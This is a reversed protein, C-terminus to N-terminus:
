SNKGQPHKTKKDEKQPRFKPNMMEKINDCYSFFNRSRAYEDRPRPFKIDIEKLIRGPRNSMILIRDCMFVAEEVSNTVLIFTSAKAKMNKWIDLTLKRLKDASFADLSSFPEDMLTVDPDIALARAIATAQKMGGSVERPYSNEFGKLGVKSVFRMATARSKEPDIDHAELPLEVNELITKWPLLAYNQFLIAIDPSPEELHEGRFLIEGYSPTELGAIIRLLASKGCGSPGLIGLFEGENVDFTVNKLIENSDFLKGVKKVEIIAMNM